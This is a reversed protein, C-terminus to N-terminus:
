RMCVVLEWEDVCAPILTCAGLILRCDPFLWSCPIRTPETAQDARARRRRLRRSLHSPTQANQKLVCFFYFHGSSFPIQQWLSPLESQCRPLESQCRTLIPSSGSPNSVRASLPARSTSARVRLQAARIRLSCLLLPFHFVVAKPTWLFGNFKEGRELCV